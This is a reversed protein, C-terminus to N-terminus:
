FILFVFVLYELHMLHFQLTISQLMHPIHRLIKQITRRINEAWCSSFLKYTGNSISQNQNQSSMSRFEKKTENSQRWKKFKNIQRRDAQWRWQRDTQRDAGNYVDYYICYVSTKRFSWISITAMKLSTLVHHFAHLGLCAFLITCNMVLVPAVINKIGTCLSFVRRRWVM